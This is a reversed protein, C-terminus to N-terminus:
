IVYMATQECTVDQTFKGYTKLLFKYANLLILVEKLKECQDSEGKRDPKV